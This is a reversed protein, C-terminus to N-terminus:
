ADVSSREAVGVPPGKQRSRRGSRESPEQYRQTAADATANILRRLSTSAARLFGCTRSWRQREFATWPEGETAPVHEDLRDLLMEIQVCYSTFHMMDAIVGGDGPSPLVSRRPKAPSARRTRGNNRPKDPKPTEKNM